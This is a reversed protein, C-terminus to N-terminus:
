RIHRRNVAADPLAAETFPFFVVERRASECVDIKRGNPLNSCDAKFSDTGCYTCSSCFDWNWGGEHFVSVTCENNEARVVSVQVGTSQSPRGTVVQGKLLNQVIHYNYSYAGTDYETRGNNITTALPETYYAIACVEFRKAPPIPSCIVTTSFDSNSEVNTASLITFCLCVLAASIVKLRIKM